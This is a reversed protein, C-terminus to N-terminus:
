PYFPPPCAHRIVGRIEKRPVGALAMLAVVESFLARQKRDMYNGTRRAAALTENVLEYTLDAATDADVQPRLRIERARRLAQEIGATVGDDEDPFKSM